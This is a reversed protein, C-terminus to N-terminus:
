EEHLPPEHYRDSTPPTGMGSVQEKPIMDFEPKIRRTVNSFWKTACKPCTFQERSQWRSVNSNNALAESVPISQGALDFADLSPDQSRKEWLLDTLLRKKCKPCQTFYHPEATCRIAASKVLRYWNMM